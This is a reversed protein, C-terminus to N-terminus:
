TSAAGQYPRVKPAAGSAAAAGVSPVVEYALAEATATDYVVFTAPVNREPPPKGGSYGMVTGPNITLTKGVRGIQLTHNHGYCVVDYRDAAAVALAIEPFHSVAIRQGGKRRDFFDGHVSEYEARSLLRGEVEVLEAYPGCRQFRQGYTNTKMTIAPEDGRNNGDVLYVPQSFGEALVDVVFPSCLDGCFLLADADPMDALAAQLNWVNDHIDSLIALKM